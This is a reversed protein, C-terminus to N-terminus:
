LGDIERRLQQREDTVITELVKVREELARIKHNVVDNAEPEDRRRAKDGYYLKAISVMGGILVIMIVMKFPDAM